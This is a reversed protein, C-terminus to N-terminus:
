GSSDGVKGLVMLSDGIAELVLVLTLDKVLLIGVEVRWGGEVALM